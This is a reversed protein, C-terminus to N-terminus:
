WGPRSPRHGANAGRLNGPDTRRLGLGNGSMGMPGLQQVFNFADGSFRTITAARQQQMPQRGRNQEGPPQEPIPPRPIRLHVSPIATLHFDAQREEGPLLKIEEAAPRM